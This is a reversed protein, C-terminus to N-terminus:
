FSLSFSIGLTGGFSETAFSHKGAVPYIYEIALLPQINHDSFASFQYSLSAHLTQTTWGLFRKDSNAYDDQSVFPKAMSGDANKRLTKLYNADEVEVLSNEQQTFSYGFMLSLNKVFQDFALYGVINWIAGPDFNVFSKQLVFVGQQDKQTKLRLPEDGKLFTHATAQIGVSLINRVTAELTAQLGFGLHKNHGLPVSLPYDIGQDATIPLIVNAQVSGQISKVIGKKNNTKGFWGLACQTDTLGSKKYPETLSSLGNEKLILPLDTDVFAQMDVNNITKAGQLQYSVKQIKVERIPLSALFYLNWPLNQKLIFTAQTSHFAGKISLLGDDDSLTYTTPDSFPGNNFWYHYTRPMTTQNVNELNLGLHTLKTTGILDFLAGKDQHQNFAKHAYSHQLTAAITPSWKTPDSSYPQHIFPSQYFMPVTPQICQLKKYGHSLLFFVVSAYLFHTKNMM